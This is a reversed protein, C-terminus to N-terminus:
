AWKALPDVASSLASIPTEVTMIPMTIIYISFVSLLGIIGSLGPWRHPKKSEESAYSDIEWGDLITVVIVMTATLTLLSKPSAFYSLDFFWNWNFQNVMHTPLSVLGISLFSGLVILEIILFAETTRATPKAGLILPISAIVAWIIGVISDWFVSLEMTKTIM